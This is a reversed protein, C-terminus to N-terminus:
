EIAIRGKITGKAKHLVVELVGNKFRARSNEEMVDAPLTVIRRITGFTRERVYYGESKDEAEHNRECSIELTRPNILGITIMEKEAGPLDAVVIVEDDHERVDVRFDGRIAPIKREGTGEPLLFRDNPATHSFFQDLEARMEEMERWM